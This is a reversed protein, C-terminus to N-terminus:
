SYILNQGIFGLVQGPEVTLSVSQLTFGEYHKTLGSASVLPMATTTM